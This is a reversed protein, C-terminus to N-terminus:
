TVSLKVVGLRIVSLRIVSPMAMFMHCQLVFMIRLSMISHTMIRSTTTSLATIRLTTISFAMIILTTASDLCKSSDPGIKYINPPPSPPPQLHVLPISSKM